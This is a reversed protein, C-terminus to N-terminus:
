GAPIFAVGIGTGTHTSIVTGAERVLVESPGCTEEIEDRLVGARDASMAHLVIFRGGPRRGGLEVVREMVRRLQAKAGRVKALPEFVGDVVEIIPRISLMGGMLSAAKGIRGGKLLNEFGDFAVLFHVADRAKAAEEIVEGVSRGAQAARAAAVAVFALGGSLNRSDFVTVRDGFRTAAESAAQFTGSLRSSINVSVVARSDQLAAEFRRVFEGVPPQSTTPLQPMSAMREFYEAQTFSGDDYAVGDIVVSLPVSAIGYGEAWEAPLDSTSDTLVAVERM